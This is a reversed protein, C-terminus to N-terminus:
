GPPRVGAADRRVPNLRCQKTLQSWLRSFLGVYMAYAAISAIFNAISVLGLAVVYLLAMGQFPASTGTPPPTAIMVRIMIAQLAIQALSLVIAGMVVWYVATAYKPLGKSPIRHVLRKVQRIGLRFQFVFLALTVLAGLLIGSFTHGSQSNSVLALVLIGTAVTATLVISLARCAFREGDPESGSRMAPDLTTLRIWGLVFFALMLAVYAFPLATELAEGVSPPLFLLVFALPILLFLGIIPMLVSITILRAGSRLRRLYGPDAHILLKRRLSERVPSACEPCDAGIALGRLNYGCSMCPHDFGLTSSMPAGPLDAPKDITRPVTPIDNTM